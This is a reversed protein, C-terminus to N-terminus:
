ENKKGNMVNLQAIYVELESAVGIFSHMQQKRNHVVMWVYVASVVVLVLQIIFVFRALLGSPHAFYALDSFLPLGVLVLLLLALVIVIPWRIQASM